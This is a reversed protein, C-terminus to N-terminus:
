SCKSVLQLMPLFDSEVKRQSLRQSEQVVNAYTSIYNRRM